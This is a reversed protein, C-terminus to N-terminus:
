RARDVPEIRPQRRRLEAGRSTVWNQNGALRAVYLNRQAGSGEVWAVHPQGNFSTVIAPEGAALASNVNLSSQLGLPAFNNAQLHRVQLQAVGAASVATDVYAVVPALGNLALAPSPNVMNGAGIPAGLVTWGSGQPYPAPRPLFIATCTRASQMDLLGDSCDPDGEWAFFQANSGADPLATLTVPTGLPYSATCHGACNAFGGPARGISGQGNVVVTLVAEGLATPNVQLVTSARRGRLLASFSVSQATLATTTPVQLTATGPTTVTFPLPAVLNDSALQIELGVPYAPSIAVSLSATEGGLVSAPSVSMALETPEPMLTIPQSSRLGGYSAEIRGHTFDAVASTAVSAPIESQGESFGVSGAAQTGSPLTVNLTVLAGGPPAPSGLRVTLAIPEGGFTHRQASLSLAFPGVEQQAVRTGQSPTGIAANPDVDRVWVALGRGRDDMAVDFDENGFRITINGIAQAGLWGRALTMSHAILETQTRWVAVGNGQADVAVKIPTRVAAGAGIEEPTDSWAGGSYRSAFVRGANAHGSDDCRWVVLVDGNAAMAAGLAGACESGPLNPTARWSPGDARWARILPGNRPEADIYLAMAGANPADRHLVLRASAVPQDAFPEALSLPVGEWRDFLGDYRRAVLQKETNLYLAYGALGAGIVVAPESDRADGAYTEAVDQAPTWGFDPSHRMSQLFRRSLNLDDDASWGVLALGIGSGAMAITTHLEIGDIAQKCDWNPAATTSRCAIFGPSPFGTQEVGSAHMSLLTGGADGGLAHTPNPMRTFSTVGVTDAGTEFFGSGVRLRALRARGREATEQYAVVAEGDGKFTVKPNNAFVLETPEPPLPNVEENCAAISCLVAAVLWTRLVIKHERLTQM